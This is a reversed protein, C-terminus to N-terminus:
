VHARGIKNIQSDGDAVNPVTVNFQYLGVFNPALGKYTVTADTSGFKFTLPAALSNLQTVITGGPISPTVDGFGIGYITISDGPKAPRFAVGAILGTNGVYVQDAFQAVLYQTGNVKFAAPALLGPAAAVKTSSFTATSRFLM